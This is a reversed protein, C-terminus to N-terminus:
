LEGEFIRDDAGAAGGPAAAYPEHPDDSGSAASNLGGRERGAIRAARGM